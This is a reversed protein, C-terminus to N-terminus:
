RVHFRRRLETRARRDGIILTGLFLFVSLGFALVSCGPETVIDVWALILPIISCVILSLQFLLYSQWNRWNVIMLVVIAADTLIVAGPLVYNVSWGRYGIVVDILIVYLVALVTMSTMKTRYGSNGVIALRFILFAYFIGADAILSWVIGRYTIYNIYGCVASVLLALFLIINSFLNLRRIRVRANPYSKTGKGGEELVSRCLPCILTDDKIKVNCRICKSM